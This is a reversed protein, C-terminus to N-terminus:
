LHCKRWLFPALWWSLGGFSSLENSLQVIASLIRGFGPLSLFHQWGRIQAYLWSLSVTFHALTPAEGKGYSGNGTELARNGSRGM